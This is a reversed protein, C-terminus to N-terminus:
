LDQFDIYRDFNWLCSCTLFYLDPDYMGRRDSRLQGRRVLDAVSGPRNNRSKKAMYIRVSIVMITALICLGIVFNDGSQRKMQSSFLFPQVHLYLTCRNFFLIIGDPGVLTKNVFGLCSNGVCPLMGSSVLCLPFKHADQDWHSSVLIKEM